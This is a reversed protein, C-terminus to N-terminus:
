QLRRIQALNVRAKDYNPDLDLARQFWVVAEEYRRLAGLVAGLSNYLSVDGPALQAAPLPHWVM